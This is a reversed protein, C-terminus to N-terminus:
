NDPLALTGAFFVKLRKVTATIKRATEHEERSLRDSQKGGRAIRIPRGGSFYIRQEYAPVEEGVPPEVPKTYYLVLAGAEDFIYEAYYSRDSMSSKMTVKRLRDPYHHGEGEAKDYYFKYIVLYNGVAPWVHENSNVTLQNCIIGAYTSEETGSESLEIKKNLEDAMRRIQAVAGDQARVVNAACLFLFLLFLERPPLRRRM